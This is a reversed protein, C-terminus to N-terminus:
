VECKAIRLITSARLAYEAAERERRLTEATIKGRKGLMPEEVRPPQEPADVEREEPPLPPALHDLEAARQDASLGAFLRDPILDDAVGDQDDSEAEEDDDEVAEIARALDDGREGEATDEVELRAADEAEMRLAAKEEEERRAADAEM